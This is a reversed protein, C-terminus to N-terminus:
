LCFPVFSISVSLLSVLFALSHAEPLTFVEKEKRKKQSLFPVPPIGAGSFAHRGSSFLPFM